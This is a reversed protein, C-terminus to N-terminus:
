GGALGALAQRIVQRSRFLVMEKWDDTDPFFHRRIQAKIRRTEDAHWDVNTRNHLWHDERLAVLGAESSFTGFELAAAVQRDGLMEELRQYMLGHRAGASSTAGIVTLSEGFWTRARENSPSGPAHVSILEGYGFPGLGTHYDVCAVLARRALQHDAIIREFTRRSWTPASGGYFLGGPHRYQGGSRAISYAKEGNAQRWAALRAMAAEFLAGDLAAPVFADALEDYGPNGPLPLDFDAFNRNLDVGEETVRRLWAFGHPNIAHVLLAAVDSPLRQPGGALLWDLQAGSGCFGEVGHTGSILVLVRSASRPGFWAVDTALAEGTPGPLPNDYHSLSGGAAGVQELFRRRAESYNASFCNGLQFGHDTLPLM